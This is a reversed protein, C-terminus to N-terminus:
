ILFRLRCGLGRVRSVVASWFKLSYPASHLINHRLTCPIPHLSYPALHLTLVISQIARSRLDELLARSAKVRLRRFSEAHFNSPQTGYAWYLMKGCAWCMM